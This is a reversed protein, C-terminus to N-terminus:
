NNNWLKLTRTKGTDQNNISPKLNRILLSEAIELRVTDNIQKLIKINNELHQRTLTTAHATRLHKKIAGDQLHMTMRRSLSTTTLGIYQANLLKCDEDPCSYEYLVNTKQIGKRKNTLNNTMILQNLKDNKYYCVLQIRDNGNTCSVNRHIINKLVREDQKYASTMQNRYYITHKVPSAEGSPSLKRNLFTAIEDEVLGNPFGNNILIQKIREIEFNFLDWSSSIKYARSIYARIASIKYREPCESIANICKGNDTPKTYVSTVYCENNAEVSVDLFPIKDDVSLEYTFHLVSNQEMSAKLNKLHDENRVVVFIDDVYRCYTSPKVDADELVSNELHAMYFNAFTPGLCSGMAIGNIQYYLKNDPTTFPSKTTCVRLMKELIIKPVKPPPLTPHNYVEDTIINITSEVPVNSFLSEADLSALLGNPKTSKLIEIFEDTSKIMYKSPMYPTIIGNVQKSLKYTPTPIQSIIPRLPCSQKHTKVNGYMYGPSYHGSIRNFKVHGVAANATDILSNAETKLKETPDRTILQFKTRDKLIVNLKQMYDAKNLLVFMNSKDAKRIILNENEKLEKAIEKQRQSLLTSKNYCRRKTGEAKLQEKLDPNFTVKNDNALKNISEFLLELEVGKTTKDFKPQMHCNLSMNLVEKQENSLNQDSLNIFSDNEEPLLLKGKYLSNLKRLTRTKVVNDHQLHLHDLETLISNLLEEDILIKTLEATLILKSAECEELLSKKQRIQREVLEKRYKVTFQENRAAPDHLKINTYNPLINEKLCCKNFVLAYKFNIIKKQIREISRVLNKTPSSLPFILNGITM